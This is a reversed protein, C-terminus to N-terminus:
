NSLEDDIVEKFAEFPRAGSIMRGNIFFAPTGTVGVKEGNQQHKQVREAYKGSELCENFKNMNLKLEGAYKKLADINIATQNSFLKKNMDWYKGQDGACHAAEHAKQSDKHFSLPFDCLAYRLKGKYKEQFQNVTDRSRGCFPCQYDTFEVITVPADKPGVSPCDTDTIEMRPAKIMVEVNAKKKLQGIYSSYLDDYKQRYLYGRINSKVEDLKKGGMQEKKENFFKEVDKDSVDVKDTVSKKLLDAKSSSQKKSEDELLRDEIIQNLGAKRADYIELEAKALQSGAVKRIDEETISQGNLKALVVGTGVPAQGATLAAGGTTSSSSPSKGCSLIGGLVVFAVLLIGVFQRKMPGM